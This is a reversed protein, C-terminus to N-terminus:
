VKSQCIPLTHLSPLTAIAFTGIPDSMVVGVAATIKLPKLVFNLCQHVLRDSLLGWVHLKNHIFLPVPLLSLLLFSHLSSKSCINTDINTLRLLLPHAMCNGSMVSINTKDSSLITGLLTAGNPLGSQLEWAHDGTLWENYVHMVQAAMSWVKCPVFSIHCKF